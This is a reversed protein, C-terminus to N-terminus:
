KVSVYFIIEAGLDNYDTNSPLEMLNLRTHKKIPLIEEAVTNLM